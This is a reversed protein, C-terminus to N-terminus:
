FTPLHVWLETITLFFIALLIGQICQAVVICKFCRMPVTTCSRLKIAKQFLMVM